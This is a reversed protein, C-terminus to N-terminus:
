DPFFVYARAEVSLRTAAPTTCDPNHFATHPCGSPGSAATDYQQFMLVEDRTLNSFWCWRHGPDFTALYFELSEGGNAPNRVSDARVLHETRVTRLDCLALPFDQPPPTLARWLNYAVLRGEPIADIGYHQLTRRVESGLSRDTRDAHVADAVADAIIGDGYQQHNRSRLVVIPSVFVQSSGTTARVLAEMEAQYVNHQRSDGFDEVESRHPVLTFGERDLSPPVASGRLDHFRVRYARLSVVTASPNEADIRPRVSADSLYRIEADVDRKRLRKRLWTRLPADYLYEVLTAAIVIAIAILARTTGSSTDFRAAIMMLLPHHIAYLPYSIAGLWAAVGRAFPPVESAVALAVILPFLVFVSIAPRAPIAAIHPLFLALAGLAIPLIAPVRWRDRTVRHLLLGIGYGWGVRAFGGLFTEANWGGGWNGTSASAAFAWCIGMAVVFLGLRVNTLRRVVLGHGANIVLEFFLSWLVGNLPFIGERASLDPILFFHGISYWGLQYSQGSLVFHAVLGLLVGLFLAPYLRAFRFTMFRRWSMGALLKDEYARGLVFGSIVFFLDVALYGYRALSPDGLIWGVHILLVAIAAIGRLADLTLVHRSNSVSM